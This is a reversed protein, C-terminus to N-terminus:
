NSTYYNSADNQLDLTIDDNGSHQKRGKHNSHKSPCILIKVM